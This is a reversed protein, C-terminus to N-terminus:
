LQRKNCDGNMAITTQQMRWEDCNDDTAIVTRQLQQKDTEDLM